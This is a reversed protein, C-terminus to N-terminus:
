SPILESYNETKKGGQQQKIRYSDVPSPILLCVGERWVGGGGREGGGFLSLNSTEVM